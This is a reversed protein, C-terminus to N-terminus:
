LSVHFDIGVTRPPGIVSEHAVPYVFPTQEEWRSYTFKNFINDAFLRASYRGTGSVYGLRANYLVYSRVLNNIATDTRFSGRQSVTAGVYWSGGHGFPAAMTYTAGAASTFKPAQVLPLGVQTPNAEYRHIKTDNYAGNAFLSWARTPAFRIDAELGKGDAAGINKIVAGGSQYVPVQLDRYNFYYGDVAYSLRHDLVSGKLGLEYNDSTEPGYANPTAGHATANMGFFPIYASNANAVRFTDIGGAKWGQSYQAYLVNHDDLAYNSAARFSLNNWSHTLALPPSTYFGWNYYAGAFPKGANIALTAPDPIDLSYNKRDDNYRVTGTVTLRDVHPVPLTGDLFASWGSFHGKFYGDEFFAQSYDNRVLGPAPVGTFAFTHDVWNGIFGNLHEDFASVGGVISTQGAQYLLKFDQQVLHDDSAQSYPGGVVTPLADYKEVYANTVKRYSTESSLTVSPTVRYKLSAGTDFVYFNAYNQDGVLTIDATFNPLSPLAHTSGNERREEYKAHITADLGDIGTYRALIRGAKVDLPELRGGNLNTIYGDQNESDAAIRVAFHDTVPINVTARAVVRTREGFGLDYSQSLEDTPQNQIVNIAGAIASHGFLSAQPGKVVEVRDVDYIANESNGSTARGQFVGDVYMAISSEDAFGYQNSSVGRMSSNRLYGYNSGSVFNPVLMAIDSFDKVHSDTLAEAGVASIALPADILRQARYESTVIVEGLFSDSASPQGASARPGEPSGSAGRGPPTAQALRPGTLQASPLANQALASSLDGAGSGTTSKKKGDDPSQKQERDGAPSAGGGPMPAAILMAGSADTHLKLPTGELLKTVADRPELTGRLGTTRLGRLQDAQYVLEVGSQKSLSELAATLDGAPIDFRKPDAHASAAVSVSCALAILVSRVVISKLM